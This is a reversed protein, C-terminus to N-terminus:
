LDNPCQCRVAHLGFTHLQDTNQLKAKLYNSISNIWDPVKINGSINPNSKLREVAETLKVQESVIIIKKRDINDGLKDLAPVLEQPVFIAEINDASIKEKLGVVLPSPWLVPKEKYITEQDQDMRTLVMFGHSLRSQAEDATISALEKLPDPMKREALIYGPSQAPDQGYIFRAVKERFNTEREIENERTHESTGSSFFRIIKQLPNRLFSQPKSPMLGEFDLVAICLFDANKSLDNGCVPLVQAQEDLEARTLLGNKLVSELIHSNREILVKTQDSETTRQISLKSLAEPDFSDSSIYLGSWQGSDKMQEELDAVADKTDTIKQHYPEM